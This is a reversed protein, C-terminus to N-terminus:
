SLTPNKVKIQINCDIEPLYEILNPVIRVNVVDLGMNTLKDKIKKSIHNKNLWRLLYLPSVKFLILTYCDRLSPQFHSYRDPEKIKYGSFKHEIYAQWIFPSIFQNIENWTFFSPGCSTWDFGANAVQKTITDNYPLNHRTKHFSSLGDVFRNITIIESPNDERDLYICPGKIKIDLNLYKSCCATTSLQKVLVNELNKEDFDLIDEELGWFAKTNVNNFFKQKDEKIKISKELDQQAQQEIKKITIEKTNNLKELDIM